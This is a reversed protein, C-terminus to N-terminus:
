EKVDVGVERLAEELDFYTGGYWIKRLLTQSITPNRQESMHTPGGEIWENGAHCRLCRASM